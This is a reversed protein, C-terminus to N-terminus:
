SVCATAHCCVEFKIHQLTSFEHPINPPYIVSSYGSPRVNFFSFNFAIEHPALADCADSDAFHQLAATDGVRERFTPTHGAARPAPFDLSLLTESPSSLLPKVGDPFPATRISDSFPYSSDNISSSTIIPPRSHLPPPTNTPARDSIMSECSRHPNIILYFGLHAKPFFITKPYKPHLVTSSRRGIDFIKLALRISCSVSIRISGM